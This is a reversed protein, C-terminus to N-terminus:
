NRAWSRCATPSLPQGDLHQLEVIEDCRPEGVDLPLDEVVGFGSGDLQVHGAHQGFHKPSTPSTDGVM